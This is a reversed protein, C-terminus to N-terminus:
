LSNGLFTWKHHIGRGCQIGLDILAHSGPLNFLEQYIIGPLNFCLCMFIFCRACHWVGPYSYLQSQFRYQRTRSDRSKLILPLSFLGVRAACFIMSSDCSCIMSCFFKSVLYAFLIIGEIYLVSGPWILQAPNFACPLPSPIFSCLVALCPNGFFAFVFCLM